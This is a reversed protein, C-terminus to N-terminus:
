VFSYFVPAQVSNAFLINRSADDCYGFHFSEHEDTSLHIFLILYIYVIYYWETM